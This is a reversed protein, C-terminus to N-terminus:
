AIRSRMAHVKVINGIDIGNGARCIQAIGMSRIADVQLVSVHVEAAVMSVAVVITEIDSELGIIKQALSETQGCVVSPGM